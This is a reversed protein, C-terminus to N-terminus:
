KREGCWAWRVPDLQSTEWDDMRKQSLALQKGTGSWVRVGLPSCGIFFARREATRIAKAARVMVARLAQPPLSLFGSPGPEPEVEEASVVSSDVVPTTAVWVLRPLRPWLM